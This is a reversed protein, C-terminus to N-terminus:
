PYMCKKRSRARPRRPGAPPHPDAITRRFPCGDARCSLYVFDQGDADRWSDRRVLRAGCLRCVTSDLVTLLGDLGADTFGATRRVLEAVKREREATM